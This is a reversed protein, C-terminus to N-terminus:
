HKSKKKIIRMRSCFTPHPHVPLTETEGKGPHFLFPLPLLSSLDQPMSTESKKKQTKKGHTLSRFFGPKPRFIM